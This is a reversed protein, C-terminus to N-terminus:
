PRSARAAVLQEAAQLCLEFLVEVAMTAFKIQGNKCWASFELLRDPRLKALNWGPPRAAISLEGFVESAGTRLPRHATGIAVIADCDDSGAM